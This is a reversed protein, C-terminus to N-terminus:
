RREISILHKDEGGIRLASERDSASLDRRNSQPIMNIQQAQYMRDLAADTDARPLDALKRRLESLKVFAGPESALARYGAVIGSEVDPEPLGDVSPAFLDALSEEHDDLHRRVFPLIAYLAREM